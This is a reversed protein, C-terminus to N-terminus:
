PRKPDSVIEIPARDVRRGNRDLLLYAHLGNPLHFIIEGGAHEFSIEGTLPGLPHEFLNQRGVNEAFDYSRWYAGYVSDHRELLRNNRSVGSDNFGARVVSEEQINTLAEIRLLRELERDSNPLQLLDHYLPPRAATAVFWDARVVPEESGTAAILARTE